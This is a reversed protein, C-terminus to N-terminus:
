EDHKSSRAEDMIGLARGGMRGLEGGEKRVGELGRRLAGLAEMGSGEMLWRRRAKKDEIAGVEVSGTADHMVTTSFLNLYAFTNSQNPNSPIMHLHTTWHPTGSTWIPRNPGIEMRETRDKSDLLGAVLFDHLVSLHQLMTKTKAGGAPGGNAAGGKLIVQSKIDRGSDFGLVGLLGWICKTWGGNRLVSDGNVSLLWGLFKTSDIRIEPSIHTMASNVYLM